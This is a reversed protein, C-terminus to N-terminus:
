WGDSTPHVKPASPEDPGECAPPNRSRPRRLGDALVRAAVAPRVIRSPPDVLNVVRIFARAVAADHRATRFLRATYANGFRVLLTRRGTIWPMRLDSAVSLAWAAAGARAIRRRLRRMSRPRQRLCHQLVLAETAAVSMGQGYLPNFTSVADGLIVLGDPFRRLRQYHRRVAHPVRYRVPSDLPTAARLAEYLDPVVLARAFELYEKPTVPPHHGNYGALSVLWRDGEIRVIAGGRPNAVTAGVAVGLDGGLADAPMTVACSAYAVDIRLRDEDPKPYGIGALWDPATSGRGSADVVLDAALTQSGDMAPTVRVGTVARHDPSPILGTVTCPAVVNVNPRDAVRVRIRRELYPRTVGIVPLGSPAQAFRCGDLYTRGNALM